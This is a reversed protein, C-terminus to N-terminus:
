ARVARQSPKAARPTPQASLQQGVAAPAAVVAPGPGRRRRVRRVARRRGPVPATADCGAGSVILAKSHATRAAVSLGACTAAGANAAAAAEPSASPRSLRPCKTLTGGWEREYTSDMYTCCIYTAFSLAGEYIRVPRTRLAAAGGALRAGPPDTM